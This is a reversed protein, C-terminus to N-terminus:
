YDQRSANHASFHMKKTSQSRQLPVASDADAEDFCNPCYPLTRIVVCESEQTQKGCLRCPVRRPERLTESM